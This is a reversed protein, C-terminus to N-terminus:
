QKVEEKQKAPIAPTAPPNMNDRAQVKVQEEPKATEKPVDAASVKDADSKAPNEAATTKPKTDKTKSQEKKPKQKAPQPEETDQPISPTKDTEKIVPKNQQPVHQAYLLYGVGGCLGLTLIFNLVAFVALWRGGSRQQQPVYPMAPQGFSQPASQTLPQAAPESVSAAALEDVNITIRDSSM